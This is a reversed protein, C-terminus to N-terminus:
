DGASGGEYIDESGGNMTEKKKMNWYEIGARSLKSSANDKVIKRNKISYM